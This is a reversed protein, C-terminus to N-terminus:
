ATAPTHEVTQTFDIKPFPGLTSSDMSSGKL